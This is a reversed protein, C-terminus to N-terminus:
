ASTVTFLVITLLPDITNVVMGVIFYAISLVFTACWLMRTLILWRGRLHANAASQQDINVASHAQAQPQTQSANMSISRTAQNLGCALHAFIFCLAAIIILSECQGGSCNVM